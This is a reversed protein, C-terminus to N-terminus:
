AVAGHRGLVHVKNATIVIVPAQNSHAEKRLISPALGLMSAHPFGKKPPGAGRREACAKGSQIGELNVNCRQEGLYNCCCYLM